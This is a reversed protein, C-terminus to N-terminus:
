GGRQREIEAEQLAAQKLGRRATETMMQEMAFAEDVRGADRLKKALAWQRMVTNHWSKYGQLSIMMRSAEEARARDGGSVARELTKKASDFKRDMESLSQVSQSSFGRPTPTFLQGLVPFNSNEQPSKKDNWSAVQDIYRLGINNVFHRIKMPSAEIGYTDLWEAVQNWSEPTSPTTQQKKEYISSIGDPVIRRNNYFEFNIESEIATRVFPNILQSLGPGTFSMLRAYMGAAAQEVTEGRSKAGALWALSANFAMSDFMSAPGDDFPIKFQLGNRLPISGKRAKDSDSREDEGKLWEELWKDMEDDGLAKLGLVVAPLIMAHLAGSYMVKMYTAARVEPDPHLLNRWFQWRVALRAGLFMAQTNVAQFLKNESRQNFNATINDGGMTSQEQNLGRNRGDIHAGIRTLAEGKPSLWWGFTAWNAIDMPKLILSVLAGARSQIVQPLGVEAVSYNIRRGDGDRRWGEQIMSMFSRRTAAIGFANIPATSSGFLSWVESLAEKEADTQAGTTWGQKDTVGHIMGKIALHAYYLPVWAAKGEANLMATKPDRYLTNYVSFPLSRTIVRSLPSTMAKFVGMVAALKPFSQALSGGSSLIELVGNDAIFTYEMKGQVKRAIVRAMRPATESFLVVDGPGRLDIDSPKMLSGPNAREMDEKNAYGMSKAEENNLYDALIKLHQDRTVPMAKMDPSIPTFVRMWKVKDQMDPSLKAMERSFVKMTDMLRNMNYATLAKTVRAEVVEDLSRFALESGGRDREIGYGIEHEKMGGEYGATGRQIRGLPWYHEAANKIRRADDISMENSLVSISLLADM